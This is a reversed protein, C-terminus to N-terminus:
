ENVRPVPPLLVLLPMRLHLSENQMIHTLALAEKTNHRGSPCEKSSSAERSNSFGTYSPRKKLTPFTGRGASCHFCCSPWNSGPCHSLCLLPCLLLDSQARASAKTDLEMQPVSGKRIKAMDYSRSCGWFGVLIQKHSRADPKPSSEPTNDPSDRLLPWPLCGSDQIDQSGEAILKYM